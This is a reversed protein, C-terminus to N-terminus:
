SNEAAREGFTKMLAAYAFPGYSIRQVGADALDKNSPATPLKVINVPMDLKQCLTRIAELNDLGPVFFSDAGADKYAKAREHAQGLVNVHNSKDKEKFFLDTRANIFLSVGAEEATKRIIQIRKSQIEVEYLGESGIIQDEFNLGIVGTDILKKTNEALLQDDTGAYGGEFDVSLPVNVHSVIQRITALVQEFPIVEGDPYGQSLAMPKSGTAVVTAGADVAVKASGANWINYLIVPNNKQHLSKFHEYKEQRTMTM